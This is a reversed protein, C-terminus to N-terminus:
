LAGGTACTTKPSRSLAKRLQDKFAAERMDGGLFDADARAPLEDMVQVCM